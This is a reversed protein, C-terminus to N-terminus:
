VRRNWTSIIEEKADNWTQEPSRSNEMEAGCQHCSLFWYCWYSEDPTNYYQPHAIYLEIDTNGCFPCPLLENDNDVKSAKLNYQTVEAKRM